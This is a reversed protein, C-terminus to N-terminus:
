GTWGLRGLGAFDSSSDDSQLQASFRSIYISSECLRRVAGTFGCSAFNSATCGPWWHNRLMTSAPWGFLSKPSCLRLLGKTQNNSGSTLNESIFHVSTPPKPHRSSQKSKLISCRLWRQAISPELGVLHVSFHMLNATWQEMQPCKSARHPSSPM